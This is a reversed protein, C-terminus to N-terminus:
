FRLFYSFRIHMIARMRIFYMYTLFHSVSYSLSLLVRVTLSFSTYLSLSLSLSVSHSLSLFISVSLFVSLPSLFLHPSLLCCVSLSLCFFLDSCLHYLSFHLSYRFERLLCIRHFSERTAKRVTAQVQSLRKRQIDSLSTDSPCGHEGFHRLGWFWTAGLGWVPTQFIFIRCIYMCAFVPRGNEFM